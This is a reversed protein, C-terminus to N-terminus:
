EVVLKAKYVKDGSESHLLYIGSALQQKKLIYKKGKYQDSFVLQGSANFLKISKLEDSPFIITTESILPNPFLQINTQEAMSNINTTLLGCLLASYGDLKGYGWRGSPLSATTYQDSYACNIISQRIMQNTAAPNAQLCLAAFGAVVPSSASTGGARVHKGGQAVVHPANSILNPLIGLSTAAIVNAGTAAIEPKVRGDRTPGISSSAAIQGPIEATIQTNNNVDVWQNRNTYNAVTIIEDSCQFSSVITQATDARRYYIINPYLSSSPVAGSYYNFDWSDIRGNGTHEIRWFYNTSDAKIHFDLEYVGFTNISAYSEVIGIRNNNNYITDSKIAGLAYNYPKFSIRGLDTFNPSNVGVSYMVNKIDATDAFEAPYFDVSSTKIWSYSTDATVDYGVHFRTAGGNGASAVLVRGPINGFMANIVQAELDTGDHSGYYDGVSANVVLPKGLQTAKDIIYQMADSITFGPRNFDLAVVVIDAKPAMGEYHGIALGNGAAIGCSNTGHGWNANDNHTCQGLDIESNNWEQGYGFATPTNAAVPKTMDWLFKIRSNGGADKFDPHNFDTGSDVIGVVVGTGDYAQALPATGLKVDLIRNRVFATDSMPQIHGEKYEIRTVQTNIALENIKGIPISISYINGAKYKLKANTYSLINLETKPKTLVLVDIIENSSGYKLKKILETNFITQAQAASLFLIIFFTFYKTM